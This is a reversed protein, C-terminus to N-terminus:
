AAYREAWRESQDYDREDAVVDRCEDCGDGLCALCVDRLEAYERGAQEMAKLLAERKFLCRVFLTVLPDAEDHDLGARILARGYRLDPESKRREVWNALTFLEKAVMTPPLKPEILPEILDKLAKELNAGEPVPGM